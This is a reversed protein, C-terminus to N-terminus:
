KILDVFGAVHADYLELKGCQKCVLVIITQFKDPLKPITQPSNFSIQSLIGFMDSVTFDTSKCNLCPSKKTKLLWEIIKDPNATSEM